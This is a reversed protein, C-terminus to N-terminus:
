EEVEEHINGIVEIENRKVDYFGINRFALGKFVIFSGDEFDVTVIGKKGSEDRMSLMDGEYIEVGNKDKLGTYQELRHHRLLKGDDDASIVLKGNVLAGLMYVINEQIYKKSLDDYVRFKITRM